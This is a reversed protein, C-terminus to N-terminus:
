PGVLDSMWAPAPAARGKIEAAWKEDTLRELNETIKEGYSSVLGVYARPGSCTEVTVIMRRPGGTAVHLVHGVPNGDEDFPQTHVDAITPDFEVDSGYQFFLEPYWGSSSAGGCVEQVAVTQNIFAMQEATFPQGSRQREAMEGLRTSVQQLRTFHTEMRERTSADLSAALTGTMGKGREAYRGLATYFAPYPDVYADPFECSNGGTYSQKVYLITDHRLEAWSALQTNLVRRGWGEGTAVAPLGAQKSDALEAKLPSLARLSSLWLTYLSGEWYAPEHADVLLRMAELDPAYSYKTLEPALLAAAQDNGMAAYAADFASPMMRKVAGRGVRDFVVNSFVQSDVTYRQGFLQFARHLPLTSTTGNVAIQSAIRQAGYGGNIVAQALAEDPLAALGSGDALGLDALLGPAQAATMSDHEGVFLGITTDVREFRARADADLLESLGVAAELQRRRFISAGTNEDTEILRLETRGFWMMARFYQQLAPSRTYHGRPTFQSFDYRRDVGFLRIATMGEGAKARAFLDALLTADGGAVLPALADDILSLGLALFLDLDAREPGKLWAVDGQGLRGRMTTLMARVDSSLAGAEVSSLIKDYSQHVAYLLSDASIYVPLDDRYISAYGYTFTPFQRDQGISFGHTALRAEEDASPGQPSSRILDLGQAQLPDYGLPTAGPLARSAQLQEATLGDTAQLRTRLQALEQAQAASPAVAVPSGEDPPSACNVGTCNLSPSSANESGCGAGLLALLALSCLSRLTNM